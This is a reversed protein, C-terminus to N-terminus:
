LGREVLHRQLRFSEAVVEAPHDYHSVYGLDADSDHGILGGERVAGLLTGYALFAEMGCARLADLVTDISSLLPALHEPDRSDFLRSLSLSKDLGLPRGQKDVVQIRDEGPGLAVEAAAVEEGSVHDVLSLSTRGDLFRALVPPWPVHRGGGAPESDRLTWFSWIRRGDFLVDVVVDEQPSALDFFLGDDDARLSRVGVAGRQTDAGM